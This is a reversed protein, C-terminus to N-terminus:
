FWVKPACTLMNSGKSMILPAPPLQHQHTSVAPAPVPQSVASPEDAGLLVMLTIFSAPLSPGYTPFCMNKSWILYSSGTYSHTSSGPNSSLVRTIPDQHREPQALSGARSHWTKGVKQFIGLSGPSSRERWVVPNSPSFRTPRRPNSCLWRKAWRADRCM